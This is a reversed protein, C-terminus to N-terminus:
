ETVEAEDMARAIKAEVFHSIASAKAHDTAKADGDKQKERYM